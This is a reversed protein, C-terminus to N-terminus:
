SWSLTVLLARCTDEWTDCSTEIESMQMKVDKNGNDLKGSASINCLATVSKLDFMKSNPFVNKYLEVAPIWGGRPSDLSRVEIFIFLINWRFSLDKNKWSKHSFSKTSRILWGVGSGKLIFCHKVHVTNIISVGSISKPHFYAIYQINSLM